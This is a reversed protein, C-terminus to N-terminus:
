FFPARFQPFFDCLATFPPQLVGARRLATGLPICESQCMKRWTHISCGAVRLTVACVLAPPSLLAFHGEAAGCKAVRGLAKVDDITLKSSSKVHVVQVM